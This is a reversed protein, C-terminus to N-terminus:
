ATNRVTIKMSMSCRASWRTCRARRNPTLFVTVQVENTLSRLLKVTLPSLEPRSSQSWEWWRYHRAALYNVMVVLALMALSAVLANFRMGLRQGASASKGHHDPTPM